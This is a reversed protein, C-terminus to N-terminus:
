RPKGEVREFELQSEESRLDILFQLADRYRPCEDLAILVQRKAEENRNLAHLAKALRFRISAPDLVDLATLSQLARVAYEHEMTKEAAEVALMLWSVQMPQVQLALQSWQLVGLWEEDNREIDVLRQLAPLADDNRRVLEILAKREAAVDNRGRHIAALLGYVGQPRADDPLLQRLREAYVLAEDWAEKRVADAALSQLARYHNPHDILWAEWAEKPGREPYGEQVDDLEPAFDVALQNAYADFEADLAEITGSHRALAERIPMGIALDKLVLLLREHGYTKVFFEVAMASEFYAFQLHLPTKAKLFASSLQSVPVLEGGLIMRRYELNMSQGWSPNRLREEYVSIGESLWRPMKNMTKQLTVVHCYEHWLVSHLNSPSEGQAAPSIATILQGFCVGLFGEGGPLGFTRIAFDQQKPFIEVLVPEQLQVEYKDTMYARAQTLLEVISAGYVEAERPEMRIIFGPAEISSFKRLEEELQKLNFVSVDYPDRQRAEEILRWGRETDGLRLLDQALQSKAAVFNPDMTLARELYRVAEAFRYHESLKRGITYDVEPNLPWAQLGRSRAKGSEEFRGQLHAITALYAWAMPHKPNVELVKQLTARADDYLEQDIERDAILLLSPLYHQNIELSRALHSAGLKADSPLWARALLYSVDPNEAAIDNAKQLSQTAVKYDRKEIALEATALHAELLKPDLKLARDYCLELVQRPDEGALLFYKGLPVLEEKGTYRWPMRELLEPITAQQKAANTPQNNWRYVQIGLLRLRLSNPYRDVAQEFAILAEEYEGITMLSEILLRSWAENWIGKEVEARCLEACEQYSGRLMLQQAERIDAGRVAAIVIFIPIAFWFISANRISRRQQM